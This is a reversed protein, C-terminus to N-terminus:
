GSAVMPGCGYAEVYLDGILAVIIHNVDKNDLKCRVVRLGPRSSAMVELTKLEGDFREILEIIKSLTQKGPDYEVFIQAYAPDYQEGSLFEQFSVSSRRM